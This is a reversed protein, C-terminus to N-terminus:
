EGSGLQELLKELPSGGGDASETEEAPQDPQDSLRLDKPAPRQAIRISLEMAKGEREIRVPVSADVPQVTITNILEKSSAIRKGAIEVVLDGSRLGAVAAPGGPAVRAIFAGRGLTGRDREVETNPLEVGIYGRVVQGQQLIQGVVFAALNSPISFGIGVSGARNPDPSTTQIATNIGVVRGDMSFLPGGSNGPNIAADTQLYDDYTHASSQAPTVWQRGKASIIGMTVSSELGFPSGIAVVSDGVRASDSDSWEVYRINAAGQVRVAALDTEEDAGALEAKLIQNDATRVSIPMQRKQLEAVVHNNTVVAGDASIFFGSGLPMFRQNPQAPDALLEDLQEPTMEPMSPFQKRMRRSEEILMARDIVVGVAVVAPQCREVLDAVSASGAVTAPPGSVVSASAPPAPALTVPQPQSTSSSRFLSLGGRGHGSESVLYGVWVGGALGVILCFLATFRSGWSSM